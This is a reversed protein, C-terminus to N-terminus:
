EMLEDILKNRDEVLGLKRHWRFDSNEANAAKEALTKYYYAKEINNKRKYLISLIANKIYKDKPFDFEESQQLLLKEVDEFFETKNLQVVLESYDLYADTKVQPYIREFDIANKYNELAMGYNQMKYYIDGKLKFASSKNFKDDPYENFYKELLNLAGILLENNNKSNLTSAQIILYQPRNFKQSKKLRLFFDNEDKITWTTKRYWDVAMKGEL